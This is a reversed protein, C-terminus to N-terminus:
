SVLLGALSAGKLWDRETILSADAGNEHKAIAKAITLLTNADTMDITQHSKVGLVSAVHAVYEGTDNEVPPAWRTIVAHVTKLGHNRGYTQLVKLLARVGWEMSEFTCFASDSQVEALGQWLGGHRINGPNKNRIGRSSM